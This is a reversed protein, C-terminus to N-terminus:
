TSDEGYALRRLEDESLGEFPNSTKIEGDHELVQKDRWQRPKRNKLWFIASTPNPPIYKKTKEKKLKKEGNPLIEVIEKVEEHEFGTASKFLANEVEIDAIKKGRKLADRFKPFKKKWEYFTTIGIGMNKAIQADVLYSAWEEIQRLKEKSKWDKYKTM